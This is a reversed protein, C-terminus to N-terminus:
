CYRIIHGLFHEVLHLSMFYDTKNGMYGMFSLIELNMIKWLFAICYAVRLTLLGFYDDTVQSSHIVIRDVACGDPRHELPYKKLNWHPKM